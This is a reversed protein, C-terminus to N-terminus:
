VRKMRAFAGGRRNDRLIMGMTAQVLKPFAAEIERRILQEVGPMAGRADINFTNNVIPQPTPGGGAVLEESLDNPIVLSSTNPIILEPGQEGVLALQGAPAIGGAAFGLLHPNGPNGGGGSGAGFVAGLLDGALGFLTSFFDGGGSGSASLQANLIDEIVGLAVRSFDRWDAEGDAMVGDIISRIRFFTAQFSAEIRRNIAEAEDGFDTLEDAMAKVNPLLPPPELTFPQAGHFSSRIEMTEGEAGAEGGGGDDLLRGIDGHLMEAATEFTQAGELLRDAAERIVAASEEIPALLDALTKSPTLVGSLDDQGLGDDGHITSPPRGPSQKMLFDRTKLLLELDRKFEELTLNPENSGRTPHDPVLNYDEASPVKESIKRELEAIDELIEKLTGYEDKIFELRERLTEAQRKAADAAVDPRQVAKQLQQSLVRVKPDDVLVANLFGGNDQLLSDAMRGAVELGLALTIEIVIPALPIPM